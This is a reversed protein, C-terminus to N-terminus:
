AWSCSRASHRDPRAQDHLRLPEDRRVHRRHHLVGPRRELAPTSAPLDLTLSLGMLAAYGWFTVQAAGISMKNIRFSLVFVFALPAFVILWMLPSTYIAAGLSTLYLGSGVQAVANTADTTTAAAYTFYSVLGTVVLGLGMYNYVRQLYTRLGQDVVAASGARAAITPRDFEAM